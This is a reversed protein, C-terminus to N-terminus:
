GSPSPGSMAGTIQRPNIALLGDSVATVCVEHLMAYCHANRTRHKDGLGSYWSRVTQPTLDAIPTGHPM